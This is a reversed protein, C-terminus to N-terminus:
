PADTTMFVDFICYIIYTYLCLSFNAVCRILASAASSKIQQSLPVATEWLTIAVDEEPEEGPEDHKGTYDVDESVTRFYEREDGAAKPISDFSAKFSSSPFDASGTKFTESESQSFSDYRDRPATVRPPALSLPAECQAPAFSFPMSMNENSTEQPALGNPKLAGSLGRPPALGVGKGITEGKKNKTAIKVKFKKKQEAATLYEYLFTQTDAASRECAWIRLETMRYGPMHNLGFVLHSKQLIDDLQPGSELEQRSCGPPLMSTVASAVQIGKMYISVSCETISVDKSSFVICVHNWREFSALDLREKEKQEQHYNQSSLIVSGGCSCFQLEGTDRLLLEWLVCEKNSGLCIKSFDDVNDGLTRRALVIEKSMKERQTLYYWFEISCKQRAHKDPRHLMGVDLSGGRTAAIALGSAIDKGSQEFVLDFLSKVKGPEGEDVSSTSQQLCFADHEGVVVARNQYPSLDQFGEVKWNEGEDGESMRFYGSLNAEDSRGEGVGDLWGSDEVSDMVGGKDAFSDNGKNLIDALTTEGRDKAASAGGKGLIRPRCRGLWDEVSDLMLLNETDKRPGENWVHKSENCPTTWIRECEESMTGTVVELRKGVLHQRSQTVGKCQQFTPALPKMWSEINEHSMNLDSSAKVLASVAALSASSMITAVSNVNMGIDNLGSLCHLIGTADGNKAKEMLLSLHLMKTDASETGIIDLIKLADDPRKKDIADLAYEMCLYSSPDSQRPLAAGLAHDPSKLYNAFYSDGHSIVHLFADSSFTAKTKAAVPLCPPLIKTNTSINLKATGALLWSSADKLHYRNLMEFTRGTLGAGLVGIGESEGHAISTVKRGFKEVIARLIPTSNNQKGGVCIANSIMPELMLAPFTVARPLSFADVNEGFEVLNVSSQFRLSLWRDPCIALLHGNSYFSTQPCSAISGEMLDQDLCCIYRISTGHLYAVAFAGLPALRSCCAPEESEAAVQLASNLIVVRRSTSVAFNRYGNGDGELGLIDLICENEKM